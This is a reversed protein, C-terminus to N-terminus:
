SDVSTAVPRTAYAVTIASTKPIRSDNRILRSGLERASFNNFSFRSKPVNREM